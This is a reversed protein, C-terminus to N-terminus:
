RAIQQLMAGTHHDGVLPRELREFRSTLRQSPNWACGLPQAPDTTTMREAQQITSCQNTWRATHREAQWQDLFGPRLTKWQRIVGLNKQFDRRTFYDTDSARSALGSSRSQDSPNTLRGHIRGVLWNM